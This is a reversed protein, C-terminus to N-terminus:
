VFVRVLSLIEAALQGLCLTIVAIFSVVLYGCLLDALLVRCSSFRQVAVCILSKPKFEVDSISWRTYIKKNLPYVGNSEIRTKM